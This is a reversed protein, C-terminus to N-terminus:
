GGSLIDTAYGFLAPAGGTHVFIVPEEQTISGECIHAILGAMAKGSYVPDLLIGECLAVLKVAEIGTHTPIGYREGVFSDDNEFDNEGLEIQLGLRRAARNAIEAMDKSRQPLAEIPSFGRVQIPSELHCLGLVLGAQTTDVSSVYIYRPRLDIARCQHVIELAAEAYAIAFLHTTDEPDQKGGPSRVAPQRPIYVQKGESRLREAEAIIAARQRARDNDELITIQAGFLRLLFHNGQIEERDVPREPRLFLRLELGLKACAAALQRCYNSQVAAGAVIIKAGQSVADAMGFELMRTKNGGFALGTLDDRKVFLPPGGLENSLRPMAELPTPRVGLPLRPVRDVANRLEREKDLNILPSSM